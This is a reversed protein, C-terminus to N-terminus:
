RLLALLDTPPLELYFLCIRRKANRSHSSTLDDSVGGYVDRPIKPSFTSVISSSISSVVDVNSKLCFCILLNHPRLNTLNSSMCYIRCCQRSFWSLFLISPLWSPHFIKGSLKSRFRITHIQLFNCCCISQNTFYPIIKCTSLM